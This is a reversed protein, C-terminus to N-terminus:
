SASAPRLAVRVSLRNRGASREYEIADAYRRVLALGLGGVPIDGPATAPRPPVERPDFPVGEDTFVLHIHRDDVSAELTVEHRGPDTFGHRVANSLVEDAILETAYAPREAVGADALFRGLAEMADPLATVEAPFALHLCPRAPVDPAPMVLADIM